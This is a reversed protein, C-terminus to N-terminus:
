VTGRAGGLHAVQREHFQLGHVAASVRRGYRPGHLGGYLASGPPCHHHLAPLQFVAAAGPRGGAVAATSQRRCGVPRGERRTFVGNVTTGLPTFRNSNGSGTCDTGDVPGNKVSQLGELQCSGFDRDGSYVPDSQLYGFYATANGKGDAFNTGMILNFNRNRGDKVTGTPPDVGFDRALGQIGSNHNHHIDEGIQADFQIGEFNRKMIFNVVGAIADSGYVSSAGGTVVDIREILQVPIQDLDPAPSAIATNPSGNGLRRGDILVLTRNPGLGRLDATTVGGAASLGSTNGTLDQGLSNNFNQPLQLIVDSIDNKGTQQITKATIVQIPSTSTLNPAAIRSGTVVVEQLQVAEDEDAAFAPLTVAAAVVLSVAMPWRRRRWLQLDFQCM